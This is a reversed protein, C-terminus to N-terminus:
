GGEVVSANVECRRKERRKEERRREGRGKEEGDRDVEM